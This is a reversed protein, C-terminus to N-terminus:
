CAKAYLPKSTCYHLRKVAQLATSCRLAYQLSCVPVGAFVSSNTAICWSTHFFHVLITTYVVLRFRLPMKLEDPSLALYARVSSQLLASRNVDILNSQQQYDVHHGHHHGGHRPTTSGTYALGLRNSSSHTGHMNSHTSSSSTITLHDDRSTGWLGTGRLPLMSSVGNGHNYVTPLMSADSLLSRADDDDTVTTATASATIMNSSINTNCLLVAAADEQAVTLHRRFWALKADFPLATVIDLIERTLRKSTSVGGSSSDCAKSDETFSADTLEVMNLRAATLSASATGATASNDSDIHNTSSSYQQELESNNRAESGWIWELQGSPLMRRLWAGSLSASLLKNNSSTSASYCNSSSNSCSHPTAALVGVSNSRNLPVLRPQQASSSRVLGATDGAATAVAGSVDESLVSSSVTCILPVRPPPKSASVSDTESYAAAAAAAAASAAATAYQEQQHQQQEDGMYAYFQRRRQVDDADASTSSSGSSSNDVMDVTAAPTATIATSRAAAALTECTVVASARGISPTSTATVAATDSENVAAADAAVALVSSCTTSVSSTDIGDTLTIAPVTDTPSIPSVSSIASDNYQARLYAHTAKQLEVRWKIWCKHYLERMCYLWCLLRLAGIVYMQKHTYLCSTTNVLSCSYM